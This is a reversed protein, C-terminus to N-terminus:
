AMPRKMNRRRIEDSNTIDTVSMARRRRNAFTDVEQPIKVPAPWQDLLTNTTGSSVRRAPRALPRPGIGLGSYGGKPQRHHLGLPMQDVPDKRANSELSSVAVDYVWGTGLRTPEAAETGSVSKRRGVCRKKVARIDDRPESDRIRPQCTNNGVVERAKGLGVVSQSHSRPRTVPGNAKRGGGVATGVQFHVRGDAKAEVEVTGRDRVSVEQEAMTKYDVQSRELVEKVKSAWEELEYLKHLMMKFTFPYQKGLPFNALSEEDDDELDSDSGSPLSSAAAAKRGPRTTTTGTKNHCAPNKPKRAGVLTALNRIVPVFEEPVPLSHPDDMSTNSSRATTNRARRNALREFLDFLRAFEETKADSSNM